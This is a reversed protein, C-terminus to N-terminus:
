SCKLDVSIMNSLQQPHGTVSFLKVILKNSVPSDLCVIGICFAEITEM